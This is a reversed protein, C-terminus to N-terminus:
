SKPQTLDTIQDCFFCYDEPEIQHECRPWLRQFEMAAIQADAENWSKRGAARMSRDAADFSAAQALERTLPIRTL